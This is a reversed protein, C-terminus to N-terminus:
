RGILEFKLLKRTITARGMSLGLEPLNDVFYSKVDDVERFKSPSAWILYENTMGTSSLTKREPFAKALISRLGSEFELRREDALEAPFGVVLKYRIGKAADAKWYNNIRQLVKETADAAAEDVLGADTSNPRTQSFGNETGLLRGTSTEKAKITLSAKRGGPVSSLEWSYTIYIDSGTRQVIQQELDLKRNLGDLDSNDKVLQAFTAPDDVEYQRQTLYSGIAGAIQRAVANNALTQFPNQGSMAEPLIMVQPNGVESALDERSSLVGKSIFYETLLGKHIRIDRTIQYRDDPLVRTSAAKGAKWTVYKEPHSYIVDLHRKSQSIEEETSLIRDSWRFLVFEIAVRPLDEEADEPEEGVGSARVDVEVPSYSAKFAAETGVPAPGPAKKAETALPFAALMACTALAIRGAASTEANM